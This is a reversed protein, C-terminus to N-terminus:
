HCLLCDPWSQLHVLTSFDTASSPNNPHLYICFFVLALSWVLLFVKPKSQLSILRPVQSLLPHLLNVPVQFHRLKSTGTSSVTWKFWSCHYFWCYFLSSWGMPKWEFDTFSCTEPWRMSGPKEQKVHRRCQVGWQVTFNPQTRLWPKMLFLPPLSPFSCCWQVPTANVSIM